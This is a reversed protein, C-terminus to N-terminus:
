KLKTLKINLDTTGKIARHFTEKPIEIKKDIKIPLENDLQFYWDNENLPEVIRNERDRHWQLEESDVDKSFHRIFTNQGIKEEEFPLNNM